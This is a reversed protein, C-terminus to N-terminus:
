LLVLGLSLPFVSCPFIFPRLRDRMELFTGSFSDFPLTNMYM